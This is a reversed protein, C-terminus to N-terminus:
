AAGRTWSKAIGWAAFFTAIAGTLGALSTSLIEHSITPFTYGPMPTVFRPSSEHLFSLTGAISELGDPWGCAFPAITIAIISASVGLVLAPRHASVRLPPSALLSILSVTIVAEGLGILAHVAMMAPTVQAFVITGSAALEVSCAFSALMVSFLAALGLTIPNRNPVFATLRTWIWGGLGAGIVAMNLLNAGLVAFGGDAFVLCQLTVVLAMALVGFPVGLIAAALVGGLLHGSTGSLVPFNVMQGAFILASVGAFLLPEPKKTAKLAMTAALAIGAVSVVATVPCVAGELMSSPIHMGALQGSGGSIDM